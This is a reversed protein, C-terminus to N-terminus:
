TNANGQVLLKTSLSPAKRERIAQSSCVCTAIKMASDTILLAPDLPVRPSLSNEILQQGKPEHSASFACVSHALLIV